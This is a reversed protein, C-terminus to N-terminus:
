LSEPATVRDRLPLIPSTMFPLTDYSLRRWRALSKDIRSNVM